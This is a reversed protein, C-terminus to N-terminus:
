LCFIIIGVTFIFLAAAFEVAHHWVTMNAADIQERMSQSKNTKNM